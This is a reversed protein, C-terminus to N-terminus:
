MVSKNCRVHERAGVHEFESLRNTAKVLVNMRLPSSFFLVFGLSVISIRERLSTPASKSVDCVQQPMQSARERELTNLIRVPRNTAKVLVNM